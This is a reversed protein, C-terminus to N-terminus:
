ITQKKKKSIITEVTEQSKKNDYKEDLLFFVLKLTCIAVLYTRPFTQIHKKVLLTHNKEINTEEEAHTAKVRAYLRGLVRTKNERWKNERM